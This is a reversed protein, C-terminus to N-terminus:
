VRAVAEAGSIGLEKCLIAFQSGNLKEIIERMKLDRIYHIKLEFQKGKPYDYEGPKAYKRYSTGSSEQVKEKIKKEIIETVETEDCIVEVWTRLLTPFKVYKSRTFMKKYEDYTEIILEQSAWVLAM